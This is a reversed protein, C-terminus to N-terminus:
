RTYRRCYLVRYCRPCSHSSDRDPCCRFGKAKWPVAFRDLGTLRAPAFSGSVEEALTTGVPRRPQRMRCDQVVRSECRQNLEDSGRAPTLAEKGDRM